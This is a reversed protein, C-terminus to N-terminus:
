ACISRRHPSTTIRRNDIVEAAFGKAALKRSKLKRILRKLM